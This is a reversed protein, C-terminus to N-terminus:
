QFIASRARQLPPRQLTTQTLKSTSASRPKPRPSTQRVRVSKETYVQEPGIGFEEVPMAQTQSPLNQSFFQTSPGRIEAIAPVPEKLKTSFKGTKTYKSKPKSELAGAPIFPPFERASEINTISKPIPGAYQTLTERSAIPQLIAPQQQRTEQSFGLLDSSQMEQPQSVKGSLSKMQTQSKSILLPQSEIIEGQSIFESPPPQRVTSYKGSESKYVRVTRGVRVRKDSPPPESVPRYVPQRILREEERKMQQPQSIQGSSTKMQTQSKRLSDSMFGAFSPQEPRENFITEGSMMSPETISSQSEPMLIASPTPQPQYLQSTVQVLPTRVEPETQLIDPKPPITVISPQKKYIPIAGRPERKGMITEPEEKATHIFERYPKKRPVSVPSILEGLTERKTPLDLISVFGETGVGVDELIPAKKAAVPAALMSPGSRADPAIAPSGEKEPREYYTVQPLTQYVVPPLQKSPAFSSEESKKGSEGGVKININTVQQQKQKQKQKIKKKMEEKKSEPKKESEPKKAKKIPVKKKVPM